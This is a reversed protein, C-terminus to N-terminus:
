QISQPKSMLGNYRENIEDFVSNWQRGHEADAGAIVHALEHALIEVANCVTLEPNIDILPIGDDPFTTSGFGKRRVFSM